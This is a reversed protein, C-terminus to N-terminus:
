SDFIMSGNDTIHTYVLRINDNSAVFDVVVSAIDGLPQRDVNDHELWFTVDTGFGECSHVYLDGACRQCDMKVLSLGLGIKKEPGTTVFPDSVNTLINHNIGKGTDKIKFVYKNNKLSDVINLEIMDSNAKLSNELLDLVHLSLFKM